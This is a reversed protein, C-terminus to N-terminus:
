NIQLISDLLKGAVAILKSSAQYAQQYRLLNAAEEDLNVGSVAQQQAKLQAVLATQADNRTKASSAQVGVTSALQSYGEALTNAGGIAGASRQLDALAQANRGDGTAKPDGAV